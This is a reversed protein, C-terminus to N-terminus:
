RSKRVCAESSRACLGPTLLIVDTPLNLDVRDLRVEFSERWSSSSSFLRVSVHLERLAPLAAIAAAEVDSLPRRLSLSLRVLARRVGASGLLAVVDEAASGWPWQAAGAGDRRTGFDAKALRELGAIIPANPDHLETLAAYAFVVEQLHELRSLSALVEVESGDECLEPAFSISRLLPCASAIAAAAAADIAIGESLLWDCSLTLSRLKGFPALAAHLDDAALRQMEELDIDPDHHDHDATFGINLSELRSESGDPPRLAGLVGFLFDNFFGAEFKVYGEMYGGLLEFTVERLQASGSCSRTIAALLKCAAEVYRQRRPVVPADDPVDDDINSGVNEFKDLQLEPRLAVSSGEGLRLKRQDFLASLSDCGDECSLTSSISRGPAPRGFELESDTHTEEDHVQFSSAHTQVQKSFDKGGFWLELATWETEEIVRRWRRCVARLPWSARLGLADCKFM